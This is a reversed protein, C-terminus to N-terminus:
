CVEVLISVGIGELGILSRKKDNNGSSLKHHNSKM